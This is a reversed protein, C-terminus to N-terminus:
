PFLNTMKLFYFGAKQTEETEKGEPYQHPCFDHLSSDNVLHWTVM